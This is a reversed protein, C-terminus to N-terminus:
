ELDVFSLAWFRFRESEFHRNTPGCLGVLDYSGWNGKRYNLKVEM